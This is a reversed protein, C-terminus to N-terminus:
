VVSKRDGPIVKAQEIVGAWTKFPSDGRASVGFIYGTLQVIHTFDKLTDFSTKQMLPLRIMGMTMQAITYGDPKAIAMTAPGLTGNAGAKNDVIVPQGLHRGAVEAMTRMVVDTPGGATWPCILAIPRNPFKAANQALVSQPMGAAAAAASVLFTRRRM